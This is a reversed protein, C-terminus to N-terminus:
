FSNPFYLHMSLFDNITNIINNALIIKGSYLLHLDDRYLHKETISNNNIFKFNNERCLQSIKNNIAM